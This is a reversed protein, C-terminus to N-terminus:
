SPAPFVPISTMRFRSRGWRIFPVEIWRHLAYASGLVAPVSAAFAIAALAPGRLAGAFINKWFWLWPEHALYIPYSILGLTLIPRSRLMISAQKTISEPYSRAALVVLFVLIWVFLGVHTRYPLIMVAVAAALLWATLAIRLRGEESAAWQYLLASAIGIWFLDLKLPLFAGSFGTLLPVIGRFIFTCAISSIVIGWLGSRMTFVLLPAVLYFQWELSISWTPNLIAGNADPLIWYPVAGQLMMFNVLLYSRTQDAPIRAPMYGAMQFLAAVTLVIIYSPYLRLFRRSIFVRYSEQEKLLLLSIVFGSLIIFVDVANAGDLFPQAGAPLFRWGGLIVLSHYLWVWTALLGRLGDLESLHHLRPGGM